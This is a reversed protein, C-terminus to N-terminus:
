ELEEIVDRLQRISEDLTVKIGEAIANLQEQDVLTSRELMLRFRADAQSLQQTFNMYVLNLSSTVILAQRFLRIPNRLVVTLILYLSILAGGLAASDLKVAWVPDKWLVNLSLILIVVAALFLIIYFGLYIWVSSRVQRTLSNLHSRMQDDAAKLRKNHKKLIKKSSPEGPPTSNMGKNGM